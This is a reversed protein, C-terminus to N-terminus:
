MEGEKTNSFLYDGDVDDKHCAICGADMGKAVRGALAMDKDNKSITGDADYKVWFWDNNDPDYGAERQIMVTVAALKKDPTFNDKIVVHYPKKDVNVINYYLQVFAGHPSKGPMMDSKMLWKQYGDMAKWMKNAFEVDEKGGFPMKGEMKEASVVLAFAILIVAIVTGFIALNKM